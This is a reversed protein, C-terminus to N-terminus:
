IGLRTKAARISAGALAIADEDESRALEDVQARTALLRQWRDDRDIVVRGESIVDALLSPSRRADDLRILHLNRGVTDALRHRLGALALVDERRYVVMLDVDSDQRDEGTSTSGFLVALRVDRETRLTTRLSRLLAWHSQLYHQERLSLEFRYRDLGRGHLLGDNIYRRLTRESCDLTEATEALAQGM